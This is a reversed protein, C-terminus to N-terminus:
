PRVLRFFATTNTDMWQLRNMGETNPIDEWEPNSLSSTRQLRIGPAGLWTLSLGNEDYVPANLKLQPTIRYIALGNDGMAAFVLDGETRLREIGSLSTQGVKVPQSPDSIDFVYLEYSTSCVLYQGMFALHTAYALPVTALHLPSPPISIDLLEFCSSFIIDAIPTLVMGLMNGQITVDQPEGDGTYFFGSEKPHYPDSIDMLYLGLVPWGMGLYAYKDTVALCSTSSTEKSGIISPQACNRIDIVKFANGFLYAFNDLVAMPSSYEELEGVQVTAIPNQIDLVRFTDGGLYLYHGVSATSYTNGYEVFTPELAPQNPNDVKLIRLGGEGDALYACSGKVVVDSASGGCKTCGLLLPNAPMTVDIINLNVNGGLYAHNNMVAVSDIWESVHIQGIVKPEKPLSIDIIKLGETTDALYLYNGELFLATASGLTDLLAVSFPQSPNHVDIIQLGTEGEAVYAYNNSVKIRTAAGVTKYVAVTVPQAANEVNIVYLLNTDWKTIYAYNNEVAVDCGSLGRNAELIPHYPDSIDVISFLIGIIYVHSGSLTLRSGYLNALSSIIRPKQPNGIDVISLGGECAVYAIQGSVAIGSATSIGQCYDPMPPTSSNSVDVSLLNGAALWAHTGVVQIDQIDHRQYGPWQGELNVAVSPILNIWAERSQVMGSASNIQVWYAVPEDLIPTTFQQETAGSIPHSTDGSEGQYWQYTLPDRGFAQVTLTASDGAAINVSAPDKLITVPGPPLSLITLGAGSEAVYLRNGVAKIGRTQGLTTWHEVPFPDEPRSVDFVRLGEWGEALYLYHSEVALDHAEGTTRYEVINAINTPDHVDYIGFGEWGKGCYAVGNLIEMGDAFIDNFGVGIPQPAKPNSVDFVDLETATAIYAKNGVVRINRYDQDRNIQRLIRPTAPKSVDYVLLGIQGGIVYACQGCLQVQPTSAVGSINDIATDSICTPPGPQHTDLIQLHSTGDDCYCGLYVMENMVDFAGIYGSVDYTGLLVPQTPVTVQLIEIRSRTQMPSTWNEPYSDRSTLFVQDGAVHLSRVSLGTDFQGEVSMHSPDSLEIIQVGQHYAAVFANTGLGEIRLAAGPIPLTCVVKPDVPNSIDMQAVGNLAMAVCARDRDLYVSWAPNTFSLSGVLTPISPISLDYVGLISRSTDESNVAITYLHNSAIQMDRIPLDCQTDVVNTPTLSTPQNMDMICLRNGMAVYLWQNHANLAQIQNRDGTDPWGMASLIPHSPNSVDLLLLGNESDSLYVHNGVVFLSQIETSISFSGLPVPNSPDVIDLIVLRGHWCEGECGGRQSLITALYARQGSVRVMRTRGPPRYGGVREPQSPTAIDLVALGGDEMAVYCYHDAVALDIAPGRGYGPWLGVKELAPVNWQPGDGTGGMTLAMLCVLLILRIHPILSLLKSWLTIGEKSQEPRIMAHM